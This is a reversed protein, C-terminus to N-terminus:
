EACMVNIVRSSIAARGQVSGCLAARVFARATCCVRLMWALVDRAVPQPAPVVMPGLLSAAGGALSRQVGCCRVRPWVGEATSAEVDPPVTEATLTGTQVAVGKRKVGGASAGPRRLLAVGVASKLRM